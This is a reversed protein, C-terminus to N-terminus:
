LPQVCALAEFAAAAAVLYPSKMEYKIAITM